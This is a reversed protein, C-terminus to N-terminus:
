PRHYGYGLTEIEVVIGDEFRLRQMFRNPGLNYVWHEIRVQLDDAGVRILRGYHWVVPPRWIARQSVDAPEGCKAIVEGRTDGELVLLNGCRFAWAPTAILALALVASIVTIRSCRHIPQNMPPIM